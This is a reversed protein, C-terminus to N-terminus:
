AFALFALSFALPTLAVPHPSILASLALLPPINPLTSCSALSHSLPEQTFLLSSHVPLTGTQTPWHQPISSSSSWPLVSHGRDGM